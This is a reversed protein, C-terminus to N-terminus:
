HSLLHFAMEDELDRDLQIDSLGHRRAVARRM